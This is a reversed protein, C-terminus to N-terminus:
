PVSEAIREPTLSPTQFGDFEYKKRQFGHKGVSHRVNNRM